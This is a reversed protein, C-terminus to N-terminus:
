STRAAGPQGKRRRRKRGVGSIEGGLTAPVLVQLQIRRLAPEGAAPGPLAAAGPGPQGSGHQRCRAAGGARAAQGRGCRVPGRRKESVGGLRGRRGPLPLPLAAACPAAPRHTAAPGQRPCPRWVEARPPGFGPRGPGPPMQRRAPPAPPHERTQATARHLPPSPAAHLQSRQSAQFYVAAPPCEPPKVRVAPFAANGHEPVPQGSCSHPRGGQLGAFAVAMSPPQPHPAHRRWYGM